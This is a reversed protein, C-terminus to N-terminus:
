LCKCERNGSFSINETTMIAYLRYQIAYAYKTIEQRKNRLMIMLGNGPLLVNKWCYNILLSCTVRCVHYMIDKKNTTMICQSIAFLVVCANVEYKVVLTTFLKMMCSIKIIKQSVNWVVFTVLYFSRKKKKLSTLLRNTYIMCCFFWM